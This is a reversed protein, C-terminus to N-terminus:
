PGAGGSSSLKIDYTQNGGKVDFTLPTKESDAYVEPIEVYRASLDSKPPRNYPNPKDTPFKGQPVRAKNGTNLWSTDVTIKVKGPPIKDVKYSGNEAIDARASSKGEVSIFVVTGGKLPKDELYVTGSVAGKSACGSLGLLLLFAFHARRRGPGRFPFFSM